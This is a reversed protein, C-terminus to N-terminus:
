AVPRALKMRTLMVIGLYAALSLMMHWIWHSGIPIVSCVMLDISRCLAATVGCLIAAGGLAAVSAGYRPVTFAALVGGLVSIAFFAPVFVLARPPMVQAGHWWLYPAGAALVVLM